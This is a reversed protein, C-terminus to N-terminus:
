YRFLLGVLRCKHDGGWLPVGLSHMVSIRAALAGFSSAITNIEVQQAIQSPVSYFYDCRFM